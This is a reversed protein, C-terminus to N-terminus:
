RTAEFIINGTSDPWFPSKQLMSGDLTLNNAGITADMSIIWQNIEMNGTTENLTATLLNNADISFTGTYNFPIASTTFTIIGTGNVVNTFSLTIDSTAADPAAVGDEIWSVITWSGDIEGSATSDEKKCSSFLLLLIFLPFLFTNFNKKM